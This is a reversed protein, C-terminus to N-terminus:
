PTFPKAFDSALHIQNIVNEKKSFNGYCESQNPREGGPSVLLYNRTFFYRCKIFCVPSLTWPLVSLLHLQKEYILLKGKHINSIGTFVM